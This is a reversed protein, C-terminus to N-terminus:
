FACFFIGQNEKWKEKLLCSLSILESSSILGLWESEKEQSKSQEPRNQRKWPSPDEWKSFLGIGQTKAGWIRRRELPGWNAEKTARENKRCTVGVVLNTTDKRIPPLHTPNM